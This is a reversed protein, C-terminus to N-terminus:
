AREMLAKLNRLGEEFDKGIMKDMSMFVTMLKSIFPMPGTMTWVVKTGAGQTETRFVTQNESKFPRIFNLKIHVEEDPKVSMVEMRGEGAKSNGSWAYVSGAGDSPGERTQKMTPDLKQWPNWEEWRKFGNLVAYVDQPARAIEISRQVTFSDAKTSAIILVVAILGVFITLAVTM